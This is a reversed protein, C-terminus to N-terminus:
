CAHNIEESFDMELSPIGDSSFIVFVDEVWRSKRYRHYVEDSWANRLLEVKKLVNGQKTVLQLDVKVGGREFLLIVEARVKRTRHSKSIRLKNSLKFNAERTKTAAESIVSQDADYRIALDLLVNEIITVILEEQQNASLQLYEGSRFDPYYFDGFHGFEYYQKQRSPDIGLHIIIKGMGHLNYRKPLFHHFVEEVHYETDRFRHYHEHQQPALVLQIDTLYAM